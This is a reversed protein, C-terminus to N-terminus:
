GIFKQSSIPNTKQFFQSNTDNSPETEDYYPDPDYAERLEMQPRVPEDDDNFNNDLTAKKSGSESPRQQSSRM